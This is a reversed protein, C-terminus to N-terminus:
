QRGPEVNATEALNAPASIRCLWQSANYEYVDSPLLTGIQEDSAGELYIRAVEPLDVKLRPFGGSQIVRRYVAKALPAGDVDTGVMVVDGKSVGVSYDVLIEALKEVRPDM